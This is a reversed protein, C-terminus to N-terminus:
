LTRTVAVPRDGCEPDRYTRVCSAQVTAVGYAPRAADPPSPASSGDTGAMGDPGTADMRTLLAGPDTYTIDPLLFGGSAWPTVFTGAVILVVGPAAVTVGVPSRTTRPQDFHM